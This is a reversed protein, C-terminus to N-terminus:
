QHSESKHQRSGKPTTVAFRLNVVNLCMNGFNQYILITKLYLPTNFSNTFFYHFCPMTRFRIESMSCNKYSDDNLYISISPTKIPEFM